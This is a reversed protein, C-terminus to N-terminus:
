IKIRELSFEEIIGPIIEELFFQKDQYNIIIYKGLHCTFVHNDTVFANM